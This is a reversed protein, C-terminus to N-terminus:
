KEGGPTGINQDDTSSPEGEQDSQDPTKPNKRFLNLIWDRTRKLYFVTGVIAAIIIQWVLAGMGPDIYAFMIYDCDNPILTM